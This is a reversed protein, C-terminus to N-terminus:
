FIGLQNQPQHNLSWMQLVVTILFFFFLSFFANGVWFTDRYLEKFSATKDSKNIHYFMMIHVHKIKHMKLIGQKREPEKRPRSHGEKQFSIIIRCRRRLVQELAGEWSTTNRCREKSNNLSQKKWEYLSKKYGFRMRSLIKTLQGFAQIEVGGGLAYAGQLYLSDGDEEMGRFLLHLTQFLSNGLIIGPVSYSAQEGLLRSLLSQFVWSFPCPFMLDFFM